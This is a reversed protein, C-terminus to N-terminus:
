GVPDCTIIPIDFKTVIWTPHNSLLAAQAAYSGLWAIWKTREDGSCGIYIDFTASGSSHPDVAVGSDGVNSHEKRYVDFQKELCVSAAVDKHPPAPRWRFAVSCNGVTFVASANFDPHASWAASRLQIVEKTFYTLEGPGNALDTNSRFVPATTASISVFNTFFENQEDAILTALDRRSMLETYTSGIRFTM